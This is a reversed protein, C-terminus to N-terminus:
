YWHLLFVLRRFSQMELWVLPVYISSQEKSM